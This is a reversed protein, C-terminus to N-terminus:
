KDAGLLRKFFGTISDLVKKFFGTTKKRETEKKEQEAEPEQEEPEEEEEKPEPFVVAISENETDVYNKAEISATTVVLVDEQDYDLPVHLSYTYALKKGSDDFFLAARTKGGVVSVGSPHEDSVNVIIAEDNNNRIEVTVTINEGANVEKDTKQTITIVDEVPTVALTKKESFNFHEHTSSDYTGKAEIDYKRNKDLYPATLTDNIILTKTTDPLLEDLEVEMKPFLDSVISAKIDLFSTKANPNKVSFAIRYEAGESVSDDIVSLIPDLSTIKSTFKVSKEETFEKEDADTVYISVPIEFEGSKVPKLLLSIIKHSDADVTGSWFYKENKKDLENPKSQVSVFSPITIKLEDVMIEDSVDNEITVTMATQENPEMKTPSIKVTLTYPKNVKITKSSVKVSEEDGQYTYNAVPESKFEIYETIRFRYRFSKQSDPSLFTEYYLSRSTRQTTSSSSTILVGEPFEERYFFSNTAEDGKNEVTVTVLVDENLEPSTTSFERSVSLDPGRQYIVIKIGAYAEGGEFKIYDKEDSEELDRFIEEICYQKTPTVECGGESIVFDEENVGLVVSFDNFNYHTVLFVDDGVTFTDGSYYWGTHLSKLAHILPSFLSLLLIIYIIIFGRKLGIRM